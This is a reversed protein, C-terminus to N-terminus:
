KAKNKLLFEDIGALFLNVDGVSKAVCAFGGAFLFDKIFLGQEASLKGYKSKVEIAIPLGRYIGIIDSVGKRYLPSPKRFRGLKPDFTGVTKTKWCFVKRHLLERLIENEILKEPQAM